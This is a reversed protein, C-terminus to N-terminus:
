RRSEQSATRDCEFLDTHCVGDIEPAALLVKLADAYRSVPADGIIDIPNGHSWTPPLCRNLAQLSDEGPVALIGGGL